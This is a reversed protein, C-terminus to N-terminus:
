RLVFLAGNVYFDLIIVVLVSAQEELIMSSAEGLAGFYKSKKVFCM